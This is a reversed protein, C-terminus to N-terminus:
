RQVTVSGDILFNTVKLARSNLIEINLTIGSVIAQFRNNRYCLKIVRDQVVTTKYRGKVNFRYQKDLYFEGVVDEGKYSGRWTGWFPNLNKILEILEPNASSDYTTSCHSNALANSTLFSFTILFASLIKMVM